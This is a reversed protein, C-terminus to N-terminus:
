GECQLVGSADPLLLRARGFGRGGGRRAGFPLVPQSSESHGHDTVPQSREAPAPPASIELALGRDDRRLDGCPTIVNHASSSPRGLQKQDGSGGRVRELPVFALRCGLLQDPRARGRRSAYLTAEFSRGGTGLDTEVASGATTG